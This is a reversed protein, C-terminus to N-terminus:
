PMFSIFIGLLSKIQQRKYLSGVESMHDCEFCRPDRKKKRESVSEGECVCVFARVAMMIDVALVAGVHWIGRGGGGERHSITIYKDVKRYILSKFCETCFTGFVAGWGGHELSQMSCHYNTINKTEHM